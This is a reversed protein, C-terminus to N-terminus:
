QLRTSLLKFTRVFVMTINFAWQFAMTVKTTWQFAMIVNTTWRLTTTVKTTWQLAMTVNTTWQLAMTVNTTWQCAMTVNTTWQLAMTVISTWQFTMTVNTTWQFAMMIFWDTVQWVFGVICWDWVACHVMKYCFYTCMETVCHHKTPYKDLANHSKHSPEITTRSCSLIQFQGSMYWRDPAEKVSM